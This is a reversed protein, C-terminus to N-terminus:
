IKLSVVKSVGDQMSVGYITDAETIISDNHSIVIYQSNTAYKAILKSLLESNKKDLAADVEDLIYFHAPEFEQIAFIFSLAAMTKEGGSLSKIDLFKNGSFKVQIDIGDAFPDEPNEVILFAQNGKTSLSLYIEQFNKNIGEFTKMFIGKKKTEIEYMMKLVDDKELKLTEYKETLADYETKVKEYIELARMNVNGMNRMSQEFSKIESNLEGLTINRRLQVNEFEVFEKKLGELEGNIMAISVSFDNGRTEIGRIREENKIITVDLQQIVKDIKNRKIFMHQYESYFKKQVSEKQKLLGRQEILFSDLEKLEEGFELWEKDVNVLISVTKEKESKYMDVQQLISTCQSNNKIREERLSAKNEELKNLESSLSSSTLNNMKIKVGEREKRLREIEIGLAKVDSEVNSLGVNVKVLKEKCQNKEEKLKSFDGTDYGKNEASVIKAELVAKRERLSIISEDNETKKQEILNIKEQLKAIETELKGMGIDVEKEKFGMGTTRRYGGIMAGSIDLLDGELTVMRVRGVGIKRGTQMSDVIVTPGFVYNFVTKFKQDYSVLDIALGVVGPMKSVTKAQNDIVREKLKNLPLFKVVGSKSEKLINICKAAVADNNVVISKINSGEAVELAMSYKSNVNGLEGVTGYVGPIKMSAIKQIAKDSAAMEKIGISRARLKSYDDNADMLNNRSNSLQSSFVSSENLAASLSKTVQKFEEKASKLEKIKEIDETELDKLKSLREDINKIEFELRDKNRLFNQKNEIVDNVEKQKSEIKTDLETIKNTIDEIDHIGHKQKFVLINQVIAEEKIDFQENSTELKEKKKFLNDITKDIDTLTKELQGKREKIRRLENEVVDKRSSKKIVVTRLEEIEKGLERQKKDGKEELEADINKINEKKTEIEKKIDDIEIQYKEVQSKIEKLKKDASEKKEEKEKILFNLRTAKNRKVNKELEKFKLAQDRDKKLDTLTKERETLIIDAENLKDHVRNLEGMAKEKKEEYVSIGAIEEILERREMGKMEMFRVIDGQLIINHGESEIRAASMLDIIQQRTRIEDNIKYVSSGSKKVIRSVKVEKSEIQFEKDINSFYLSVEAEKAPSGKKGGNYILNASKGVRMSKASSKGLVFSLADLINSKGSGNPGLVVNFMKGFPIETKKAFSKFGKAELKLIVAM